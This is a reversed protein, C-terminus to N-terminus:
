GLQVLKFLLDGKHVMQGKKFYVATIRGAAQPTVAVTSGAQVNGIAELQIPVTRQTVTAVSIPIIQVKKDGKKTSSDQNPTTLVRFGIFGITGLLLLAAIALGIRKKNSTKPPLNPEKDKLELDFEDNNPNPVNDPFGHNPSEKLHMPIELQELSM